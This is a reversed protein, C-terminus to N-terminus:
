IQVVSDAMLDACSKQVCPNAFWCRNRLLDLCAYVFGRVRPAVNKVIDGGGLKLSVLYPCSDLLATFQLAGEVCLNTRKAASGRQEWFIVM